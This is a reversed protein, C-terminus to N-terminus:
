ANEADSLSLRADMAVEDSVEETIRWRELVFKGEKYKQSEEHATVYKWGVLQGCCCCFIDSVTHPGSLMIREEVPGVSINVVNNFLFARGRNCSFSRSLVDDNLALPSHCFRCRYSRGQLEVLFVRGM